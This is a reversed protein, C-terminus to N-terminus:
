KAIKRGHYQQPVTEAYSVPSMAFLFIERKRFHLVACPHIRYGTAM